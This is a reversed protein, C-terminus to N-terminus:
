LPNGSNLETRHPQIVHLFLWPLPSSTSFWMSTINKAFRIMEDIGVWFNSEAMIFHFSIESKSLSFMQGIFMITVLTHQGSKSRYLLSLIDVGQEFFDKKLIIISHWFIALICYKVGNVVSSRTAQYGQIDSWRVILPGCVQRALGNM